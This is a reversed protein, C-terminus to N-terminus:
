LFIKLTLIMFYLHQLNHLLYGYNITFIHTWFENYYNQLIENQWVNQRHCM